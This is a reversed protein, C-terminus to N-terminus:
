VIENGDEDIAVVPLDRWEHGCADESRWFYAGQLILKGDPKKAFRFNCPAAEINKIM